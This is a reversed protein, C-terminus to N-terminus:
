DLPKISMSLCKDPIHSMINFNCESISLKTILKLHVVTVLIWDFAIYNLVILRNAILHFVMHCANMWTSHAHTSYIPTTWNHTHKNTRTGPQNPMEMLLIIYIAISSPLYYIHKIVIIKIENQRIKLHLM